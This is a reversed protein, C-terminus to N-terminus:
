GPMGPPTAGAPLELPLPAGAQVVYYEDCDLCRIVHARHDISYKVDKPDWNKHGKECEIKRFHEVPDTPPKEPGVNVKKVKSPEFLNTKTATFRKAAPGAPKPQPQPPTEEKM